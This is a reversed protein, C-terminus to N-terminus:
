VRSTTPLTLHTYSVPPLLEYFEPRLALGFNRVKPSSEKEGEIHVAFRESPTKSTSGVYLCPRDMRAKPNKKAFSRNGRIKEDLEIVYVRCCFAQDTAPEPIPEERFEPDIELRLERAGRAGRHRLEERVREVIEKLDDISKQILPRADSDTM